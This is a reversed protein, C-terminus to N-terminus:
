INSEQILILVSIQHLDVEQKNSQCHKMKIKM